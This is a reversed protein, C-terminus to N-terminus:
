ATEGAQWLLHKMATNLYFSQSNLANLVENIFKIKQEQVKLLLEATKYDDDKKIIIPIDKKDLNYEYDYNYYMFKDAYVTNVNQQYTNLLSEEIYLFKAWKARILGLQIAYASINPKNGLKPCTLDAAATKEYFEIDNGTETSM